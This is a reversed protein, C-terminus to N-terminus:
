SSARPAKSNREPPLDVVKWVEMFVIGSVGSNAGSFEYARAAISKRRLRAIRLRRRRKEVVEPKTLDETEESIESGKEAEEARPPPAVDDEEGACVVARFKQYIQEPTAMPNASDYLSFQLQIEGSVDSDKKKGL